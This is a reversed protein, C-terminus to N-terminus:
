LKVIRYNTHETKSRLIYVGEPLHSINFTAKMLSYNIEVPQITGYLDVLVFQHQESSALDVSVMGQAPNPYINLNAFNIDETGLNGLPMNVVVYGSDGVGFTVDSDYSAIGNIPQDVTEYLWNVGDITEFILGGPSNSPVAGLYVDGNSANGVSLYAPYFFTASNIDQAWSLGADVSVLVGFGGGNDNYGAYVADSTAFKVSTLQGLSSIGSPITDWTVGSDVSRLFYSANMAAIGIAGEFDMEVIYEDTNFSEYNVTSSTWNPDVFHDVQASQFCGAGGIFFDTASLAFVTSKYCMNSMMNYAPTWNVGGDITKYVGENDYLMTVFGTQEDIFDVDVLQHSFSSNMLGSHNIETWTIGGDITKLITTSDGVIYGVSNSPFDIANLNVEIPTSIEHWTQSFSSQSCLIISLLILVNKM